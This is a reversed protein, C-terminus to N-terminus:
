SANLAANRFDGMFRAFNAPSLRFAATTSPLTPVEESAPVSFAARDSSSGNIRDCAAQASARSPPAAAMAASSDLNDTSDSGATALESLAAQPLRVRYAQPLEFRRPAFPDSRLVVVATKRNARRMGEIPEVAICIAHVWSALIVRRDLDSVRDWAAAVNRTEHILSALKAFSRQVSAAHKRAMKLAVEALALHHRLSKLQGTLRVDGETAEAVAGIVAAITRAAGEHARQKAELHKDSSAFRAASLRRLEHKKLPFLQM